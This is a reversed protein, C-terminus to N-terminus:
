KIEKEINITAKYRPVVEKCWSEVVVEVVTEDDVDVPVVRAMVIVVVREDFMIEEVVVVVV